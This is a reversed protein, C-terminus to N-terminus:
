PSFWEQPKHVCVMMHHIRFHRQLICSNFIFVVQCSNCYLCLELSCFSSKRQKATSTVSNKCPANWITTTIARLPTWWIWAVGVANAAIRASPGTTDQPLWLQHCRLFGSSRPWHTFSSECYRLIAQFKSWNEHFRYLALQKRKEFGLVQWTKTKRQVMLSKNESTQIPNGELRNRAKLLVIYIQIKWGKDLPTRKSELLLTQMQQSGLPHIWKSKPRDLIQHHYSWLKLGTSIHTSMNPCLQRDSSLGITKNYVKPLANSFAQRCRRTAFATDSGVWCISIIHGEM